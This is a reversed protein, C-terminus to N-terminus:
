LSDLRLGVNLDCVAMASQLHIFVMMRIYIELKDLILSRRFLSDFLGALM